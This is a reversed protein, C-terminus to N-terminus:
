RIIVPPAPVPRTPQAPPNEVPNSGGLPAPERIIPPTVPAPSELSPGLSSDRTLKLPRLDEEALDLVRVIHPTLMIVVDTETAERHNRTFLHDLGPVDSLGPIGDRVFREDARILGGLINTEGDKLRLTTTVKRSGFTPLGGFGTGQLNSLEVNLGLSVEDNPHVRPTVGINVGINRYTYQTIPVTNVGGQAIAGITANPTPIEEGFTATAAVGDSMRLHPNALTRTNTDTKLLRYYLAPLGTLLINAQTLNRVSAITPNPQNVFAAGDIGPSQDAGSAAPPSALQLGYEMLRTRDVELIEVDVILEPRAKDFASLFRGALQLREPTDRVVIANIGSLQSISRIDSVVRLADMTEKLDTNQVYFVREAEETYERRKAPTDPIVTITNPATVQYFTGTSRAIADLAQRVTMDNLLTAPAPADRFASDFIVSLNAMRAILLYVQRSTAQTGTAIQNALKVDPLEYGAAPLDRTRALLTELPTKGDAPAALKARVATRATRLDREADSSTPNLDSAIQLELVADDYRGIAFLRRGRVLHAESARLKARELGLQADRNSPHERLVKAYQAVSVDYDRLEDAQRAQSLGRSATCGSLLLAALAGAAAGPALRRIV